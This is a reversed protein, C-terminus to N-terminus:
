LGARKFRYGGAFLFLAIGFVPLLIIYSLGIFPGFIVLIPLQIHQYANGVKTALNGETMM